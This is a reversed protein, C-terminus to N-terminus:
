KSTKYGLACSGPCPHAKVTSGEKVRPGGVDRSDVQGRPTESDWLVRCSGWSLKFISGPKKLRGKQNPSFGSIYHPLSIQTKGEFNSFGISDLASKMAEEPKAPVVSNLTFPLLSREPRGVQCGWSRLPISVLEWWKQAKLEPCCPM